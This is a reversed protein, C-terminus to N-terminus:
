TPLLCKDSSCYLESVQNGDSGRLSAWNVDTISKLRLSYEEETIGEYPMQPYAGNDSHPLMSVSKIVPVFASLMHSIQHSEKEVDFLVTCSVSNDAWERQLMALLAFQEWASVEFAPRAQGQAIPCEFVVSTKSKYPLLDTSPIFRDYKEFYERGEAEQEVLFEVTPEWQYGAERLIKSLESNGEVIIRRIAYQFTPFHMGSPVGALQSITGSPKITTVRISPPIGAARNIDFNEERVLKYGDKIWRTCRDAGWTDIWEAIGSLSVGIRRNRAIVENSVKSHTPYLSVTSSYFTADSSAILFEKRSSCRSPFVESLNCLEYSELPIEGCPNIGTAPDPGYSEDGYRAYRQVNIANYIGPEGNDRIREAIDTLKLFDNKQRLRVSNNSMWGISMREPNVSYNKLNIFSDDAPSGLCIEASRRVNGAVVCVGVANALDATLHTWNLKGSIYKECIRKIREHLIQLPEPGSATGGFGKIPAGYPRIESYDFAWDIGRNPDLYSQIQRRISEVWGERDDSITFVSKYYSLPYLEQPKDYIGFGVGCNHVFIGSSLAFNHYKEVTIDYVDETYELRKTSVVKHNVEALHEFSDGSVLDKAEKYQGSKLLFLHNLTSRITTNNDLTIEVLSANRQTIRPSHAVGPIIRGNEIDYSYVYFPDGSYTDTLEKLSVESGDLLSIKTDGTFCGCMLADMLWPIDVALDKVEVYACNYLGMSGREYIYDTGMLYLGRGPPLWTMQLMSVGMRLAREQAAEEGWPLNHLSFWWKRITFVGNIVRLVTDPWDEQSGDEKLRSYTRRYVIEGFHSDSYGFTYKQERLHRERDFTLSFRIGSDKINTSLKEIM